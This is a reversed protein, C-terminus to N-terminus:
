QNGENFLDSISVGLNIAIIEINRLCINRKGREVGSIYTRDLGCSAAFEEQSIGRRTRLNRVTNGFKARIDSTEDMHKSVIHAIYILPSHTV